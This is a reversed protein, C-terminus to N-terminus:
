LLVGNKQILRISVIGNSTAFWLDGDSDELVDHVQDNVQSRSNGLSHRILDYSGYRNNRVTIGTPYNALWIREEEDVYIDNINNGNMGNYSSYNATIYPESMYTNVDLKYVGKGGTAVLLEHANLAVIQNIEVNNPSQCPIIKGTGEMDYILVGEKYSGIFLQKSVVHYYLEHVPTSISEVTEDSLLKM